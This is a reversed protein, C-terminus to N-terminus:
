REEEDRDDEEIDVIEFMGFSAETMDEQARQLADEPSNAWVTISGDFVILYRAM